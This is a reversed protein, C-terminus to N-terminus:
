PRARSTRLRAGPHRLGAHIRSLVQLAAVFEPANRPSAVFAGAIEQARLGLLAALARHREDPPLHAIRPQAAAVRALCVERASALLSARGGHAWGFRGAALLHHLLARTGPAPAERVPGFRPLVTWLWLTLLVAGAILVGAAHEALWRGLPPAEPVRAWQVPGSGQGQQVLTWLFAAHDHERILRNNFRMLGTVVMVKGLGRQFAIVRVGADDALTFISGSQGPALVTDSVPLLRLTRGDPLMAEFPKVGSGRQARERALGLQDALPDHSGAAAPEFILTGGAAVWDLLARARPGTVLANNRPLVLVANVAPRELASPSALMEVTRGMATLMREAALWPNRRAEASPAVRTEVDVREFNRLFWATGLLAAAFLIVGYVIQQKM